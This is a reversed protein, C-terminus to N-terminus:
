EHRKRRIMRVVFIATGLAVAVIVGACIGKAYQREWTSRMPATENLTINEEADEYPIRSGQVLLRHTNVGYPTCTVLTCLDEDPVIELLSADHPLVVNIQRVKYALREGLVDIFFVDGTKMDALDSFMRQSAMGSHGTLVAHTGAGGVPLSSGFLHGVGQALTKDDSGHFVPLNIGIAPIRIYGM